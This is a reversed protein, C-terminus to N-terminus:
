YALKLIKTFLIGAKTVSYGWNKVAVLRSHFLSEKQSSHGSNIKKRRHSDRREVEERSSTEGPLTQTNLFKGPRVRRQLSLAALNELPSATGRFIEKVAIERLPSLTAPLPQFHSVRQPFFIVSRFSITMAPCPSFVNNLNKEQEWVKATSDFL